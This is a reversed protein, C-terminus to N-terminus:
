EADRDGAETKGAVVDGIYSDLNVSLADAVTKDTITLLVDTQETELLLKVGDDTRVIGSRQLTGIHLPTDDSM